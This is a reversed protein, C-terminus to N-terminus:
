ALLEIVQQISLSSTEPPVAVQYVPSLLGCGSLAGPALTPVHVAYVENCWLECNWSGVASCCIMVALAERFAHCSLRKRWPSIIERRGLLPAWSKGEKSLCSVRVDRGVAEIVNAPNSEAWSGVWARLDIPQRLSLRISLPSISKSGIYM